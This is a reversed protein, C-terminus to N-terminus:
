YVIMKKTAIEKGSTVLSYLYMGKNLTGADITIIGKSRIKYEKITEGNLNFILISANVVNEPLEYNIITSTNFPNPINQALFYGNTKNNNEDLATTSLNKLSEANIIKDKLFDIETAIDKIAQTLVSIIGIYNVTKLIKSGVEMNNEDFIPQSVEEVLEPFVKEVDQAVFGHQLLTSLQLNTDNKEKTYKYTVPNLNRLKELISIEPKIDKKLSKDSILTFSTAFVKGNFYGAIANSGTATAYLGYNICNSTCNNDEVNAFLGYNSQSGGGVKSYVGYNFVGGTSNTSVGFTRGVGFSGTSKVSVGRNDVGGAASATLAICNDFAGESIFNAAFNDSGASGKSYVVLGIRSKSYIELAPALSANDSDYPFYRTGPSGNLFLSASDSLLASGDSRLKFIQNSITSTASPAAKFLLDGADITGNGIWEIVPSGLTPINSEVAGSFGFILGRGARQTRFGYLTQNPTTLRGFATWQSSAEFNFTTGFDLQTIIGPQFRFAEINGPPLLTPTITTLITGNSKNQAYNLSVVFAMFIVLFRLKTKM